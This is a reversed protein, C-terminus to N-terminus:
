LNSAPSFATRPNSSQFAGIHACTITDVADSSTATIRTYPDNRLRAQNSAAVNNAQRQGIHDKATDAFLLACQNCVIQLLAPRTILFGFFFSPLVQYQMLFGHLWTAPLGDIAAQSWGMLHSLWWAM